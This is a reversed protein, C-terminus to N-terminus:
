RPKRPVIQVRRAVTDVVIKSEGLLDLGLYGSVETGTLRSRLSLDVARLQQGAVQGQFRLQLGDVFRAGSVAGGFGRVDAPEGMRASADSEVFSTAVISWVAGTDFLFLGRRGNGAAVEVLM